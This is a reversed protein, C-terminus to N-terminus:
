TETAPADVHWEFALADKQHLIVDEDSEIDFAHNAGMPTFNRRSRSRQRVGHLM